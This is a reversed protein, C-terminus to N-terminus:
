FEHPRSFVLQSLQFTGPLPNAYNDPIDDYRMTIIREEPFGNEKLIQYAHCVDAQHRYNWWGNSGAVLVAWKEGKADSTLFAHMKESFSASSAGRLCVLAVLSVFLAFAVMMMSM